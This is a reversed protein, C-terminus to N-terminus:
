QRICLPLVSFGPLHMSRSIVAPFAAYAAALAATFGVNGMKQVLAGGPPLACNRILGGVVVPYVWM